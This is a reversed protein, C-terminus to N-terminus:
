FGLAIVRAIERRITSGRGINLSEMCVAGYNIARPLRHDRAHKRARSRARNRSMGAWPGVLLPVRLEWFYFISLDYSFIASFCFNLFFFIINKFFIGGGWKQGLLPFHPGFYCKQVIQGFIARVIKKFSQIILVLLKDGEPGKCTPFPGM